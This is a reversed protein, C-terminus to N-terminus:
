NTMFTCKDPSSSLVPRIPGNALKERSVRTGAERINPRCGSVCLICNSQGGGPIEEFAVEELFEKRLAPVLVLRGRGKEQTLREGLRGPWM